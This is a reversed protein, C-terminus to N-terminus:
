SEGSRGLQMDSGWQGFQGQGRVIRQGNRQGRKTSVKGNSKENM